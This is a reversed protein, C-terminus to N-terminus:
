STLMYAVEKKLDLTPIFQYKGEKTLKIIATGIVKKNNTKEYLAKYVGLQLSYRIYNCDDLHSLEKLGKQYKNDYKIEKSTKWDVLYVGEPTDIVIDITGAVLWEVDYLQMESVIELGIYESLFDVAEILENPAGQNIDDLYDEIVKHIMTGYECADTRKKEWLEKIEQPSKGEKKAVFGAWYEENFPEFFDSILDTTGKLVKGNVTYTHTDEDFELM